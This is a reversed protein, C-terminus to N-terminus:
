EYCGSRNIISNSCTRAARANDLHIFHLSKRLDLAIFNTGDRLHRIELTKGFVFAFNNSAKKHDLQVSLGLAKQQNNNSLRDARHLKFNSFRENRHDVPLVFIANM